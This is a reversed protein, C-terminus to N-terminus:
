VAPLGIRELAPLLKKKRGYFKVPWQAKMVKADHTYSKCSPLFLLLVFFYSITFLPLNGYHTMLMRLRLYTTRVNNMFRLEGALRCIRKKESSFWIVYYMSLPKVLNPILTAHLSCNRSYKLVKLKFNWFARVLILTTRHRGQQSDWNASVAWYRSVKFDLFIGFWRYYMNGLKNCNKWSKFCFFIQFIPISFFHTSSKKVLTTWFGGFSTLIDSLKNLFWTM